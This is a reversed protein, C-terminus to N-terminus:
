RRRDDLELKGIVEESTISDTRSGPRPHSLLSQMHARTADERSNQNTSASASVSASASASAEETIESIREVRMGPSNLQRHEGDRSGPGPSSRRERRRPSDFMELSAVFTANMRRLQDDVADGSTLLPGTTGLGLGLANGLDPSGRAYPAAAPSSSRSPQTSQNPAQGVLLPDRLPDPNQARYQRNLPKPQNTDNVFASLDEEDANAGFLLPSGGKDSERERRDASGTSVESAGGVSDKYRHGFSSSYRKRAEGGGGGMSGSGGGDTSNLSRRDGLSGPQFPPSPRLPAIPSSSLRGYSSPSPPPVRPSSPVVAAGPGRAPLPSAQRLSPSPSHLSPSGSSLTSAKFPNLPNLQPRRIPLPGPVSPLDSGMSEKRLRANPAPLAPVDQRSSVSSQGSILGGTDLVAGPRIQLPPHRTSASLTPFSTTRSHTHSPQPAQRTMRDALSTSSPPSAPLSTRLPLSGPSSSFSDRQQNKVLTPTFDAGEDLSFFRSSLLSELEDLQFHPNTLYRVSLTISGYPHPVSPFTHSETLLPPTNAAPSVDFGLVGDQDKTDRVRLEINLITNRNTPVVLRRRLRKHLKFTPLVRLLTYISRFLGIGHKYVTSLGFDTDGGSGQRLSSFQVSWSELLIYNPIPEIRLRSSDAGRRVLVQNASLDPVSLLVQLEFPLPSPTSSLTRYPRLHEKFIEADPTELNFWKDVKALPNPEATARASHVVSVLKTYYRYAIQDAKHAENSM